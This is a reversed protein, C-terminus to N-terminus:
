FIKHIQCVSVQTSLLDTLRASAQESAPDLAFCIGYSKKMEENITDNHTVLHISFFCWSSM